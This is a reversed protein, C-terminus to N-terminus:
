SINVSLSNYKCCSVILCSTVLTTLVFFEKDRLTIYNFQYNTENNNSKTAWSSQKVQYRSISFWNILRCATSFKLNLWCSHVVNTANIEWYKFLILWLVFSLKYDRWLIFNIFRIDSWRNATLALGHNEKTPPSVTVHNTPFQKSLVIWQTYQITSNYVIM